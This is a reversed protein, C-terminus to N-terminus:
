KFLFRSLEKKSSIQLKDYIVSIRNTVTREAMGLYSAIEKAKWKRSYLMAITLEIHTLFDEQNNEDKLQAYRYWVSHYENAVSVIRRYSEEDKSFVKEILGQLIAYHEAFPLILGDCCSLEKARNLWVSAKEVQALNIECASGIIYLYILPIPNMQEAFSLAIEVMGLAREYNGELYAYYASIYPYFQRIELPLDTLHPALLPVEGAPVQLQLLLITSCFFSIAQERPPLSGEVARHFVSRIIGGVRIAEKERDSCFYSFMAFLSAVTSHSVNDSNLFRSHVRIVTEFDGIFYSYCGFAFEREEPNQISLIRDRLKGPEYSCFVSFPDWEGSDDAVNGPRKADVPIMWVRSLKYAHPLKGEKAWKQIARVSVGLRLAAREATEFEM